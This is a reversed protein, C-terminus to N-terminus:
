AAPLRALFVPLGKFRQSEVVRLEIREAASHGITDGDRVTIGPQLLYTV